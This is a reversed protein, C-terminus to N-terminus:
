QNLADIEPQTLGIGAGNVKMHDVSITASHCSSCTATWKTTRLATDFTGRVTTTGNATAQPGNYNSGSIHCATCNILPAPYTVDEFGPWQATHIQHVMVKLDIPEGAGAAGETNHCMKCLVIDGSRNWGHAELNLHCSNCSAIDVTSPVNTVAAGNSLAYNASVNKIGTEYTTGSVKVSNLIVRGQVGLTWTGTAVTAVPLTVGTVTMVRNATDWVGTTLVDVATPQGNTQAYNKYDPASWAMYVRLRSNTTTFPAAKLDYTTAPNVSPNIVAVKITPKAGATGGSVSVIKAQYLASAAIEEDLHAVAPNAKPSIPSATNHCSQCDTTRTVAFGPHSAGGAEHCSFCATYSAMNKWQDTAGESTRHCTTCNDVNQPYTIESGYIGDLNYGLGLQKGAHFGHIM